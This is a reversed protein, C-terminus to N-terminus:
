YVFFRPVKDLSAKLRPGAEAIYQCHFAINSSEVARNFIKEETLKELFAKMAIADGSITVNDKSNHCAPYVFNPCRAVAEDWSLGTFFYREFNRDGSRGMKLRVPCYV